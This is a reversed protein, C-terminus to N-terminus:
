SKQTSARQLGLVLHYGLLGAAIVGCGAVFDNSVHPSGYLLMFLVPGIVQPQNLARALREGLPQKAQTTLTSEHNSMRPESM